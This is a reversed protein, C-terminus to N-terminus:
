RGLSFRLNLNKPFGGRIHPNKTETDKNLYLGAFANGREAMIMGSNVKPYSNEGGGSPM